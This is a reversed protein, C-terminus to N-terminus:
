FNIFDPFRPATRTTCTCPMRTTAPLYLCDTAIGTPLYMRGTPLYMRYPVHPLTCATLNRDLIDSFFSCFNDFIPWFTNLIFTKSRDTRKARGRRTRGGSPPDSRTSTRTSRVRGFCVRPSLGLRHKRAAGRRSLM